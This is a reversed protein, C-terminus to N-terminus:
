TESWRERLIEGLWNFALVTAFLACGPVILLYPTVTLTQQGQAIMNGWSPDPPQIGLGLFSLAGEIIISVGMGLLGFAILQPLVHPAIHRLLVAGPRTGSLVAALMFPRERLRLTAARSVRAFAPVSFFTLALITSRMGPGLAEAVALIMVLAPFAILVDMARMFLSDLFGGRQASAAGLTGGVLIGVVNVTMAIALSVRGGHLLRSFVDNGNQDTGLLHGASLPPLGSSVASGGVPPPIHLLSPGLFCAAAIGALMALPVAFARLRSLYRLM